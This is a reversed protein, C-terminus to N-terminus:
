FLQRVSIKMRILSAKVVRGFGRKMGWFGGVHKKGYDIVNFCSTDEEYFGNLLGFYGNFCRFVDNIVMLRVDHRQLVDNIVTSRVDHRQLIDNIMTLRVDHRQLVDNIVTSRVDHCQLVGNITTSEGNIL